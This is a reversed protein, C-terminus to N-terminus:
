QTYGLSKLKEQDEESLRFTSDVNGIMAKSRWVRLQERLTGAIGSKSGILNTQELPDKGIDYIGEFKRWPTVLYKLEGNRAAASNGDNMWVINEPLHELNLHPQTAESFITRARMRRDKFLLPFATIGDFKLPVSLGLLDLITPFFDVESVANKIRRGSPLVDPASVILPVHIETEHTLMGHRFFSHFEKHDILNEGHDSTLVIVTNSLLNEKKLRTLLQGLAFDCYEIESLYLKLLAQVFEPVQLSDIESPQFAMNPIARLWERVSPLADFSLPTNPPIAALHKKYWKEPPHYPFHPDYYHVFAFFKKQKNRDLWRFFSENVSEASRSYSEVRNWEPLFEMQKSGDGAIRIKPSVANSFNSIGTEDFTEFGQNIFFTSSLSFSGIFASTTYGHSHLFEALTLNKKSLRMGNRGVGHNRPYLGTFLSAHSALTTNIASYYNEFLVGNAALADINSTSISRNGYCALFDARTTDISILLLNYNKAIKPPSSSKWWILFGAILILPTILILFRVNGKLKDM